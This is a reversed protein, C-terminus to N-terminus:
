QNSLFQALYHNYFSESRITLLCPTRLMFCALHWGLCTQPFNLNGRRKTLVCKRQQKLGLHGQAHYTSFFHMERQQSEQYSSDIQRELAISERDQPLPAVELILKENQTVTLWHNVPRYTPPPHRMLMSHRNYFGM